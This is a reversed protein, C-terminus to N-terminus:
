NPFAISPKDIEPVRTLITPDLKTKLDKKGQEIARLTDEHSAGIICFYDALTTYKSDYEDLM